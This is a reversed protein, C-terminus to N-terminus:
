HVAVQHGDRAGLQGNAAGHRVANRGRLYAHDHDAYQGTSYQHEDRLFERRRHWKDPNRDRRANGSYVNIGLALSPTIGTYGLAGGGAGLATLGRSDNQILFTVGDAPGSGNSTLNYTFTTSFTVIDQRGANTSDSPNTFYVSRAENGNNTTLELRNDGPVLVAQTAGNFALGGGNTGGGITTNATTFGGSYNISHVGAASTTATATNSFGSVGFSDHAQVQFEYATSPTLGSIITATGSVVAIQNWTSGGNTSEQVYFSDATNPSVSNDTWSLAIQTSSATQAVLSSPANPVDTPPALLGYVVLVNNPDGTGSGVYVRGNAVTAVQFKVAAGLNDRGNPRQHAIGFSPPM